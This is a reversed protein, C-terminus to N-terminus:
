KTSRVESTGFIITYLTKINDKEHCRYWENSNLPFELLDNKVIDLGFPVILEIQKKVGFDNIGGINSNEDNMSKSKKMYVPFINDKYHNTSNIPEGFLDYEVKNNNSDVGFRRRRVYANPDYTEPISGSPSPVIIGGGGDDIIVGNLMCSMRKKIGNFCPM